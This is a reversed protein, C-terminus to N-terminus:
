YHAAASGGTSKQEGTREDIVRYGTYNMVIDLSGYLAQVPGYALGSHIQRVTVVNFFGAETKEHPEADALVVAGEEHSHVRYRHGFFTFVAGIYAERFRRMASIQGVEENGRKLKFSRGLGGRLNM